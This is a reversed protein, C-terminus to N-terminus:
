VVCRHANRFKGGMGVFVSEGGDNGSQRTNSHGYAVQHVPRGSDVRVYFWQEVGNTWGPQHQCARVSGVTAYVGGAAGQHTYHGKLVPVPPVAKDVPGDRRLGHWVYRAGVLTQMAKVGPHSLRHMADFVRRRFPGPLLIPRPRALLVDCLITSPQGQLVEGSLPVKVVEARNHGNPM